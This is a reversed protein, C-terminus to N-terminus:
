CSCCRQGGPCITTAEDAKKATTVIAIAGACAFEIPAHAESSNAVFVVEEHPEIACLMALAEHLCGGRALLPHQPRPTELGQAADRVRM